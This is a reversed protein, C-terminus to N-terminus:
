DVTEITADPLLTRLEHAAYAELIAQPDGVQAAQAPTMTLTYGTPLNVELAAAVNPWCAAENVYYGLSFTAERRKRHFTLADIIVYVSRVPLHCTTLLPAAPTLLLPM